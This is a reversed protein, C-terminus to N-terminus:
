SSFNFTPKLFCQQSRYCKIYVYGTPDHKLLSFLLAFCQFEWFQSCSFTVMFCSLPGFASEMLCVGEGKVSSHTCTFAANNVEHPCSLSQLMKKQKFVCRNICFTESLSLCCGYEVVIVDYQVIDRDILIHENFLTGTVIITQLGCVWNPTWSWLLFILFFYVANFSGNGLM